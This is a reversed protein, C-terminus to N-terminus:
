KKAGTAKAYAARAMEVINRGDPLEGMARFHILAVVELLEPAALLLLANAQGNSTQARSIGGWNVVNASVPGHRGRIGRIFGDSNKMPEWPGPTIRSM